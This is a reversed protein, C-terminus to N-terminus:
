KKLFIEIWKKEIDNINYESAIRMAQKSLNCRTEKNSMLFKLKEVFEDTDGNNVLIGGKGGRLLENPGAPCDFSICACGKSMAELLVMSYGEYRSSLAFIESRKMEDEINSTFEVLDVKGCLSKEEVLSSLYIYGYRGPGIIRLKWENFEKSLVQFVNLLIDFGKIHYRDMDGVALIIKDKKTINNGPLFTAPNPILFVNNMYKSYFIRDFETLVVISSSLKYIYRREIWSFLGREALHNSHETAIVRIGLIKCLLIVRWNMGRLFSIVIDPKKKHIAFFFRPWYVIRRYIKNIYTKKIENIEYLADWDINPNVAYNSGYLHSLISININDKKSLHNAITTLVRAAGGSSVTSIVFLISKNNM